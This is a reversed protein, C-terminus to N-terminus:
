LAPDIDILSAQANPRRVQLQPYLILQFRYSDGNRGLPNIRAILGSNMAGFDAEPSGAVDIMGISQNVETIADPMQCMKVHRSSLFTMAKAPHDVDRVVPVGDFELAKHGGSLTIKKGRLTVEHTWRRENAFLNGFKSWLAPTTIILDCNEGSATYIANSTDRMLDFTLARDVASNDLENSAWQARTARNIGAYTGTTDLPGSTAYLGNIEDTGGAGNYFEQNLGKALREVADGLEDAFLNELEAPNRANMASAIAKGTMSFPADYTGYDLNAPDKNDNKFDGGVLDAGDARSGSVDTGFRASWQVNKGQGPGVQVLQLAVVARNIQSTILDEFITALTAAIAAQDVLAM